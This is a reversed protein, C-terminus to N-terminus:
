RLPLDTFQPCLHLVPPSQRPFSLLLHPLIQWEMCKASRLSSCAIRFHRGMGISTQQPIPGPAAQLSWEADLDEHSLVRLASCGRCPRESLYVAPVAPVAGM